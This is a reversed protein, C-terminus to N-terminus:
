AAGRQPWGYAYDGIHQVKQSLDHDCWIEVGNERMLASFFTDQDYYGKATYRVEFHPRAIPKIKSIDALFMGGGMLHIQELGTKGTSDVFKGDMGICVGVVEPLKKRYNATIIDKKHAFMGDLINPPFAHDDDLSLWHTFEGTIAEDLAKQRAESLCSAQRMINPYAMINKEFLYATLGMMSAGFDVKWDRCSPVSIYLKPQM